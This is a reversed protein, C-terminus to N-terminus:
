RTEGWETGLGPRASPEPAAEARPAPSGKDAAAGGSPAASTSEAQMPPAPPAGPAEFSADAPAAAGKGGTLPASGGCASAATSLTFTLAALITRRASNM